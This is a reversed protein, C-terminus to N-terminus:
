GTGRAEPGTEEGSPAPVAVDAGVEDGDAQPDGADEVTEFGDFRERCRRAYRRAGVTM